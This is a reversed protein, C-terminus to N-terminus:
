DSDSFKLEETLYVLYLRVVNGRGRVMKPRAGVPKPLNQKANKGLGATSLARKRGRKSEMGRGSDCSEEQFLSM